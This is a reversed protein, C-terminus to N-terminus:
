FLLIGLSVNLNLVIHAIISAELGYRLMLWGLVLGTGFIQAEKVGFPLTMGTHLLTWLLSSLVVVLATNFSTIRKFRSLLVSILVFRFIIEETFPAAVVSAVQILETGPQELGSRRLEELFEPNIHGSFIHFLAATYIVCLFGACISVGLFRRVSVGKYRRYSRRLWIARPINIRRASTWGGPLIVAATIATTTIDLFIINIFIGTLLAYITLATIIIGLLLFIFFSSRYVLLAFQPHRSITRISHLILLILVVLYVINATYKLFDVM